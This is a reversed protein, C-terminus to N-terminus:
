TGEFFKKRHRRVARDVYAAMIFVGAAIMFVGATFFWGLGTRDNAHPIGIPLAILVGFAIMGIGVLKWVHKTAIQKAIM